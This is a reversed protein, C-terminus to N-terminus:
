HVNIIDNFIEIDERSPELGIKKNANNECEDLVYFRDSYLNQKNKQKCLIKFFLFLTILRQQGDVVLGIDNAGFGNDIQKIIISGMFYDNPDNESKQSASIMSELFDEWMEKEWVYKRQFFPIRLIITNKIIDKIKKKNAEM